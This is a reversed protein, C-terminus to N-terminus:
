KKSQDQSEPELKGCIGMFWKVARENEGSHGGGPIVEWKLKKDASEFSNEDKRAKYEKELKKLKLLFALGAPGDGHSNSCNGKENILPHDKEGWFIFMPCDKWYKPKKPKIPPIYNASRFCLATFYEPYLMSCNYTAIGGGSFGTFLVNKSDIPLSELAAKMIKGIMQFDCKMNVGNVQSSSIFSPCIAIFGYKDALGKWGPIEATANGGNGHAAVILPMSKSQSDKQQPIYVAFKGEGYTSGPYTYFKLGPEKSIKEMPTAKEEAALALATIFFLVLFRKM